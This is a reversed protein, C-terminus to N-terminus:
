SRALLGEGHCPFTVGLAIRTGWVLAEAPRRLRKNPPHLSAGAGGALLVSLQLAAPQQSLM